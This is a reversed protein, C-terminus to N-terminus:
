SAYLQSACCSCSRITKATFLKTPCCNYSKITCLQARMTSGVIVNIPQSIYDAHGEHMLQIRFNTSGALVGIVHFGEEHGEEEEEHEEVEIIVISTDHGSFVLGDGDEDHDDDHDHDDHEEEEEEHEIEDGDHDLFHVSLELTDGVNLTLNNIVIDGEFERYVEVGNSELVLGDADTHGEPALTSSEEDCSSAMLGLFIVVLVKKFNVKLM